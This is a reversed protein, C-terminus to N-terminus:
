LSPTVLREKSNVSVQVHTNHQPHTDQFPFCMSRGAAAAMTQVFIQSAYEYFCLGALRQGQRRYNEYLTPRRTESDFKTYQEAETAAINPGSDDLLAALATQFAGRVWYFNITVTRSEQPMYLSPQNLLFHAVAPAGVETDRTFRHYAKLAFKAIYLPKPVPLGIDVAAEAEAIEQAKKLVAGALVLQGRDTQSKTIYSTMYYTASLVKPSSPTFNVDHNCRITSSIVPNYKNVFQHNRQMRIFGETTVISESVLPKPFLFRFIQLLASQSTSQELPLTPLVNNALGTELCAKMNKRQYKTCTHFHVNMKVRAAVDNSDVDLADKFEKPTMNDPISFTAALLNAQLMDSAM